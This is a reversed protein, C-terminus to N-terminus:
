IQTFELITKPAEGRNVEYVIPLRYELHEQSDGRIIGADVCGDIAPKLSALADDPDRYYRADRIVLTISVVAKYFEPPGSGLCANIGCYMAMERFERVARMKPAWHGRWNPSAEKPPLAPIKVRIKNVM